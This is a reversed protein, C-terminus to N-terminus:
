SAEGADAQNINLLPRVSCSGIYPKSWCSARGEVDVWSKCILLTRFFPSSDLPLRFVLLIPAATVEKSFDSIPRTQTSQTPRLATAGWISVKKKDNKSIKQLIGKWCCVIMSCEMVTTSDDIKWLGVTRQRGRSTAYRVIMMIYWIM